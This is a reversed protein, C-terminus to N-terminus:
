LVRHGGRWSGKRIEEKLPDRSNRDKKNVLTWWNM